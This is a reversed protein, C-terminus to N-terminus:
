PRTEVLWVHRPSDWAALGHGFAAPGRLQQVRATKLMEVVDACDWDAGIGTRTFVHIRDSDPLREVAEDFTLWVREDTV